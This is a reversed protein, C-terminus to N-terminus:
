IAMPGKLASPKGPSDYLTTTQPKATFPFLSTPIAPVCTNANNKIMSVNQYSPKM